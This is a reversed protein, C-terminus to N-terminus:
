NENIYRFKKPQQGYITKFDRYFSALSNYGCEYAIQTIAQDTDRLMASAIFIRYLRLYNMVSINLHDKFLRSIHRTTFPLVSKFDELRINNRYNNHIYDIISIVDPDNSHPMSIAYYSNKIENQILSLFLRYSQKHIEETFPSLQKESLKELLKYSLSSMRFFITESPLNNADKTHFYLTKYSVPNCCVVTRHVSNKPIYAATFGYHPIRQKEEEYFTIGKNIILIQPYDHYHLRRTSYEELIGSNSFARAFDIDIQFEYKEAIDM